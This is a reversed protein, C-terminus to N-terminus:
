KKPLCDEHVILLQTRGGKKFTEEFYLPHIEIMGDNVLLDLKKNAILEGCIACRRHRDIWHYHEGWKQAQKQYEIDSKDIKNEGYVHLYINKKCYNCYFKSTFIINM